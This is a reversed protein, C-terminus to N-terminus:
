LTVVTVDDEKIKNIGETRVKCSTNCMVKVLCEGCPCVDKLKRRVFYCRELESVLMKDEMMCGKCHENIENNM